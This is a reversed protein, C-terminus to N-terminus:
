SCRWGLRWTPHNMKYHQSAMMMMRQSALTPRTESPRRCTAHCHHKTQRHRSTQHRSTQHRETEVHGAASPELTMSPHWPGHSPQAGCPKSSPLLCCMHPGQAVTLRLKCSPNRKKNAECAKTGWLVGWHGGLCGGFVGWVYGLCGAVVEWVGGLCGGFVGRVDRLCGGFMGWVNGM